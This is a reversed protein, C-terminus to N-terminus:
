TILVNVLLFGTSPLLDLPPCLTLHLSPIVAFSSLIPIVSSSALFLLLQLLSTHPALGSEIIPLRGFYLHVLYM